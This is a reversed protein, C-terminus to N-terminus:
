NRSVFITAGDQFLKKCNQVRPRSRDIKYQPVIYNSTLISQDLHIRDFNLFIILFSIAGPGAATLILVQSSDWSSSMQMKAEGPCTLWKSHGKTVLFSWRIPVGFQDIQDFITRYGLKSCWNELKSIRSIQVRLIRLCIIYYPNFNRFGAWM